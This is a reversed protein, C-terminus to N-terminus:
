WLICKGTSHVTLLLLCKGPVNNGTFGGNKFSMGERKASFSRTAKSPSQFCPNKESVATPAYGKVRKGEIYTEKINLSVIHAGNRYIKIFSQMGIMQSSVINTGVKFIRSVLAHQDNLPAKEEKRQHFNHVERPIADPTMCILTIVPICLKM